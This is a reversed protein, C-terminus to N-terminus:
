WLSTETTKNSFWNAFVLLLFNIVTQFLGVAESYSYDGGQLGRRYIFTGIVDGTEYTLPTYLLLIKGSNASLLGGISLILLVVVTPVIGPLTIHWMQRIRGCGDMHAAEYLNPDINTLAAMYIITNWGICQWLDSFVIISPFLAPSSLFSSPAGGFLKVIENFVGDYALFSKLMGCIVVTSIFYPMYSITQVTRKFVQCKVENLLLALLIPCPFGVALSYISIFLTNRIVNLAHPSRFFDKFHALGVWESGLVGVQPRYDQFAILIGYMPIYCFIFILVISPLVMLYAQYNRKLDLKLRRLM